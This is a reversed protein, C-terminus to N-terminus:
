AAGGHRHRLREARAEAQRLGLDWGSDWADRFPTMAWRLWRGLHHALTATM